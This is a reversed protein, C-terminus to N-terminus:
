CQSLVFRFLIGQASRWVEGFGGRGLKIPPDDYVVDRMDLMATGQSAQLSLLQQQTLTMPADVDVGKHWFSDADFPSSVHGSNSSSSGSVVAAMRLPVNTGNYTPGNPHMAGVMDGRAAEEDVSKGLGGSAKKKRKLLLLALLAAVLAVGIVSGVVIGAIAGGSLGSSSSSAPAPAPAWSMTSSENAILGSVNSTLCPCNGFTANDTSLIGSFTINISQLPQM